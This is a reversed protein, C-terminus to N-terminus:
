GYLEKYAQKQVFDRYTEVAHNTAAIQAWGAASPPMWATFSFLTGGSVSRYVNGTSDKFTQAIADLAPDFETLTQGPKPYSQQVGSLNAFAMPVIDLTNVARYANPFTTDFLTAFQQNGFTPAAFTCPLFTVNRRNAGLQDYLWLSAIQVLAGGLSHGAVILTPPTTGQALKGFFAPLNQQTVPDVLGEVSGLAANIGSSIQAGAGAPYNFPVQHLVDADELWNRLFDHAVIQDLSGRFALGYTTKDAAQAVFALIGQDTAPGWALTWPGLAAAPIAALGKEIDARQASLDTEDTYAIAALEIAAWYQQPGPLESM